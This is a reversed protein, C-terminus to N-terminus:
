EEDVGGAQWIIITEDLINAQQWQLEEGAFVAVKKKGATGYCQSGNIQEGYFKVRSQRFDSSRVTM